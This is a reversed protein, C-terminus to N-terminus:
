PQDEDRIDVGRSSMAVRLVRVTHQIRSFAGDSHYLDRDIQKVRSVLGNEGKEGELIRLVKQNLDRQSVFMKLFAVIGGGVLVIDSFHITYDISFGM